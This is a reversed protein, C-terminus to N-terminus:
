GSCMVAVSGSYQGYGDDAIAGTWIWCDTERPGKVVHTWFREVDEPTLAMAGVQAPGTTQGMATDAAGELRTVNVASTSVSLGM